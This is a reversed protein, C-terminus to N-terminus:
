GGDAPQEKATQAKKRELWALEELLLDQEDQASDPRFTPSPMPPTSSKEPSSPPKRRPMVLGSGLWERTEQPTMKRVPM